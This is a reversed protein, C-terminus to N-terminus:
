TPVLKCSLCVYEWQMSSGGLREGAPSRESRVVIPKKPKVRTLAYSSSREVNAANRGGCEGEGRDRVQTEPGGFETIIGSVLGKRLPVWPLSKLIEFHYQSVRWAAPIGNALFKSSRITAM